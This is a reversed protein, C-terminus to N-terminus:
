LVEIKIQSFSDASILGTPFVNAAITYRDVSATNPMAYHDITSPFVIFKGPETPEEHKIQFLNKEFSDKGVPYLNSGRFYPNHMIWVTKDKEWGSAYYNCSIFSNPHAHTHFSQNPKNLNAWSSCIKLKDCTLSMDIKVQKLCEDFWNFIEKFEEFQHLNRGNVLIEKEAFSFNSDRRQIYSLKELKKVIGDIKNKDYFFRYFPIGLVNIKKM